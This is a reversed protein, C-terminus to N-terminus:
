MGEDAIKLGFSSPSQKDLASSLEIDYIIEEVMKPSPKKNVVPELFENDKGVEDDFSFYQQNGIVHFSNRISQLSTSFLTLSEESVELSELSEEDTDYAAQRLQFSSEIQHYHVEDWLDVTSQEALNTEMQLVDDNSQDFNPSDDVYIIEGIM